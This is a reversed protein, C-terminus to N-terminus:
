NLLFVGLNLYGAFTLWLIYPILLDGATEDIAAFLRMTLYVLIWLAVLILFATLRYELGFFVLPWIFNLVLQAAYLATARRIVPPQEGSTQVRYAAYGMLLYLITWAVPFLWSPPSLPPQELQSFAKMGDRTLVASLGGVALPIALNILLKKWDLKM